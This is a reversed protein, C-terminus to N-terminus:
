VVSKRDRLLHREKEREAKECPVMEGFTLGAGHKDCIERFPVDCVGVMPAILLNNKLKFPGLNIM